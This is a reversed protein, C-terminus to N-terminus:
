EHPRPRYGKLSLISGNPFELIGFRISESVPGFQIPRPQRRHSFQMDPDYIDDGSTGRAGQVSADHIGIEGADHRLYDTYPAHLFFM